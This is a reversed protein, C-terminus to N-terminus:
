KAPLEARFRSRYQARATDAITADLAIAKNLERAAVSANAGMIGLYLHALTAEEDLKVARTCSARAKEVRGSRLQAECLAIWGGAATPYASTLSQARSLAREVRGQAGDQEATRLQGVYESEKEVPVAPTQKRPLGMARRLHESWTRVEEQHLPDAHAVADEAWTVCFAQQYLSALYAWRDAAPNGSALRKEGSRLADIAGPLDGTNIRLHALRLFTEPHGGPRRVARVCFSLDDESPVQRLAAVECALDLLQTPASPAKALPAIRAAAEEYQRKQELAVVANYTTRAEGSLPPENEATVQISVSGPNQPAHGDGAGIMAAREETQWLHADDQAVRARFESRWAAQDPSSDVLGAPWHRLGIAVLSQAADSFGTSHYSYGPAMLTDPEREHIAGLGHAWEHLLVATEKHLKRDRYLQERERDKLKDLAEDIARGKEPNEMGRLVAHRSMLWAMGLQDLTATFIPLSSVYGVVWDVDTGPDKAGLQNLAGQLTTVSRDRDWRRVDVLELHIRFQGETVANAREFQARIRQEWRLIQGQYDGDVYARVRFVRLPAPAAGSGEAPMMESASLKPPTLHRAYDRQIDETTRCGPIALLLSLVLLPRILISPRRVNSSM